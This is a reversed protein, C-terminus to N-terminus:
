CIFMFTQAPITFLLYIWQLWNRTQEPAAEEESDSFGRIDVLKDTVQIRSDMWADRIDIDLLSEQSFLVLGDIAHFRPRSPRPSDIFHTEAKQKHIRYVEGLIVSLVYLAYFLWLSFAEAKTIYGDFVIYVIFGVGCFLFM